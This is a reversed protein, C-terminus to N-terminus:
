PRVWWPKAQFLLGHAGGQMGGPLPPSGSTRVSEQPFISVGFNESSFKRIQPPPPPPLPVECDLLLACCVFHIVNQNAETYNTCRLFFNNSIYLVWIYILNGRAPQQRARCVSEQQETWQM